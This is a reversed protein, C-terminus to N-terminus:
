QLSYRVCYPTLIAVGTGECVEKLSFYKKNYLSEGAPAGGATTALTLEFPGRASTDYCSLIVM